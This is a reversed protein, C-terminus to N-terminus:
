NFLCVLKKFIKHPKITFNMARYIEYDGSEAYDIYKSLIKLM